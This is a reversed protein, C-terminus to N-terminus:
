LFYNDMNDTLKHIPGESVGTENALWVTAIGKSPYIRMNSQFGPGGGPKGYYEIGSLKGRHWGLTTEIPHRRNDVQASYFLNKTKNDFLISNPSLQDQLFRSFARATGILGGYPAGNMYVPKFRIRNGAKEAFIENDMMFPILLGLASFRRLHGCAHNDINSIQFDLEENSIGLPDIINKSMYDSYSMGSVHEIVKGLLWYSINSYAYRSGPLFKLRSHRKLVDQLANDADFNDHDEVLHLWKLPLPNPLGSTQNLLHNIKVDHGYPHSPFYKSLSEALDIKNRDNLQLIAAATLTKTTSSSMFTTNSAVPVDSWVDKRGGYYEYRVAQSDVVVYQIGPIIGSEVM